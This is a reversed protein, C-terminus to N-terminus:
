SGEYSIGSVEDRIAEIADFIESERQEVAAAIKVKRDDECLKVWEDANEAEAEKKAEDSDPNLAEPVDITVSELNSIMGEISQVREELLQGTDGQQLQEPMNDHKEQTEDRLNELDGVIESIASEFDEATEGDISELRENIDYVTSLFESQTLQSPKPAVKSRVMPGYQFAWWYYSDGKKIGADPYDKRAKKVFHARAM